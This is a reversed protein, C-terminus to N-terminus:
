VLSCQDHIGAPRSFVRAIYYFLYIHIRDYSTFPRGTSTIKARRLSRVQVQSEELYEFIELKADPRIYEISGRIEVSCRDPDLQSFCCIASIMHGRVIVQGGNLRDFPNHSSHSISYNSVTAKWAWTESNEAGDLFGSIGWM